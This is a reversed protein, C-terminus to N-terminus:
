SVGLRGAYRLRRELPYLGSTSLGKRVRVDMKRRVWEVRVAVVLM